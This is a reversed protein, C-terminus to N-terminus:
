ESVRQAASNMRQLLGLEALFYGPVDGEPPADHEKGNLLM